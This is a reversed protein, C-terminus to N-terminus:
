PAQYPAPVRLILIAAAHLDGSQGHEPLHQGLATFFIGQHHGILNSHVIM